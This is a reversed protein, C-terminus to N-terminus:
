NRIPYALFYYLGNREMIREMGAFVGTCGIYYYLGIDSRHGEEEDGYVNSIVLFREAEELVPEPRYPSNEDVMMVQEPITFDALSASVQIGEGGVILWPIDSYQLLEERQIDDLSGAGYYDIGWGRFTVVISGALLVVGAIIGAYIRRCTMVLAFVCLLIAMIELMDAAYYYRTSNLPTIRRVICGYVAAAAILRAAYEKIAPHLEKVRRNAFFLIFLVPVIWQAAKYARQFISMQMIVLGDLMLLIDGFFNRVNEQMAGSYANDFIATLWYNWLLTSVLVAEIMSLLYWLIDKFRKHICDTVAEAAFFTIAFLAFYYQTLFGGVTVAALWIYLIHRKKNERNDIILLNVYTFAAVWFTFMMYMRILTMDSLTSQNALYVAVGMFAVLPSKLVRRFILWLFVVTGVFFPFNVLLGLWRSYGGRALVSAFYFCVYYLPPHVRDGKVLAMTQHLTDGANHGLKEQFYDGSYWTNMDFQYILRDSNTITYSYIEDCFSIRKYYGAIFFLSVALIIAAVFFVTDMATWKKKDMM